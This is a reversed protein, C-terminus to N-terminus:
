LAKKIKEIEKAIAAEAVDLLIRDVKEEIAEKVVSTIIAEMKEDSLRERVEKEIDSVATEGPGEDSTVATPAVMGTDDVVEYSESQEEGQFIHPAEVSPEAIAEEQAAQSNADEAGMLTHAHNGLEQHSVHDDVSIDDSGDDYQGGDLPMAETQFPEEEVMETLELIDEETDADDLVTDVLEIIEEEELAAADLSIPDADDGGLGIDGGPSGEVVDTLEIVDDEQGDVNSPDGLGGSLEVDDDSLVIGGDILDEQEQDHGPMMSNQATKDALEKSETNMM